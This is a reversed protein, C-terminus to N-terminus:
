KIRVEQPAEIGIEVYSARLDICRLCANWHGGEPDQVPVNLDPGDLQMFIPYGGLVTPHRLGKVNVDFQAVNRDRGTFTLISVGITVSGGIRLHKCLM